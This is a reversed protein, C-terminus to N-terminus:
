WLKIKQRQWICTSALVVAVASDYAYQGARCSACLQTAPFEDFNVDIALLVAARSVLARAWDLAIGAANFDEENDSDSDSNAQGDDM